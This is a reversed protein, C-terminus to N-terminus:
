YLVNTTNIEFILNNVASDVQRFRWLGGWDIFTTLVDPGMAYNTGIGM